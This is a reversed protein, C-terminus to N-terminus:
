TRCPWSHPRAAVVRRTVPSSGSDSSPRRAQSLPPPRADPDAATSIADSGTACRLLGTSTAKVNDPASRVNRGRFDLLHTLRQPRGLRRQLDCQASSVPLFVRHRALGLEERVHQHTGSGTAQRTPRSFFQAAKWPVVSREPLCLGALQRGALRGKHWWFLVLEVGTYGRTPRVHELTLVRCKATGRLAGHVQGFNLLVAQRAARRQAEYGGGLGRPDAPPLEQRLEAEPHDAVVPLLMSRRDRTRWVRPDPM